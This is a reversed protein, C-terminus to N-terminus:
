AVVEVRTLNSTEEMIKRTHVVNRLTAERRIIAANMLNLSKTRVDVIRLADEHYRRVSHMIYDNLLQGVVYIMSIIFTLTICTAVAVAMITTTSM